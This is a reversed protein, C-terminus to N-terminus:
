NLHLPDNTNIKLRAAHAADRSALKDESVEYPRTTIRALFVALDIDINENWSKWDLLHGWIFHCNCSHFECLMRWNSPVMELHPFKHFPLRHHVSYPVIAKGDQIILRGCGM